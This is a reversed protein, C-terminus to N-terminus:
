ILFYHINKLLNCKGFPESLKPKKHMFRKLTMDNLNIQLSDNPLQFHPLLASHPRMSFVKRSTTSLNLTSTASSAPLVSPPPTSLKNDNNMLINEKNISAFDSQKITNTANTINIFSTQKHSHSTISKNLKTLCNTLLDTWSKFDYVSSCVILVRDIMKNQIKLSLGSLEFLYKTLFPQLNAGAGFHNNIYEINSVNIKKLQIILNNKVVFPIKYEFYFEQNTSNQTLIILYNQFLTL